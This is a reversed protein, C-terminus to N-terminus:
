LTVNIMHIECGEKESGKRLKPKGPHEPTQLYSAQHISPLSNQTITKHFPIEPRSHSSKNELLISM